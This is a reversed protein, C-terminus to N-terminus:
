DGQKAALINIQEKMTPIFLDQPLYILEKWGQVKIESNFVPFQAAVLVDPLSSESRVDDVFKQGDGTDFLFYASSDFVGGRKQSDVGKMESKFLYWVIDGKKTPFVALLNAEKHAKTVESIASRFRIEGLQGFNTGLDDFGQAKSGPVVKGDPLPTQAPLAAKLNWDRIKLKWGQALKEVTSIVEM